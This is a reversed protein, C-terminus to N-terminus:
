GDLGSWTQPGVIGDVIFNNEQQFNRVAKQTLPGFIGDPELQQALVRNLSEQLVAVSSGRDGRRLLPRKGGTALIEKLSSDHQSQDKKWKEYTFDKINEKARNRRFLEQIYTRRSANVYSSGSTVNQEVTTFNWTTADSIGAYSNGAADDFATADILVYYEAGNVLDSTPDITIEDSGSGSVDSTVDFVEVTDGNSRKLTINGSEADVDESFTITLNADIAVGTSDDSPSVSSLTPSTADSTTWNTLNSGYTNTSSYPIATENINNSDQLDLYSFSRTGQPDIKFATGSTSSRLSLLNSLAGNLTGTNTITTTSGQGFTLTDASLVSKTFDYFTNSSNITQSTGDLTVTGTGATFVGGNNEFDGAVTIDQTDADVTGAGLILDGDIDLAEDLTLTTDSTDPQNGNALASIEAETLARDYIRVDDLRNEIYFSGSGNGGIYYPGATVNPTINSGVDIDLAIESGDLYLKNGSHGDNGGTRVWVAHHWEDNTFTESSAQGTAWHGVFLQNETNSYISIQASQGGSATGWDVFRGYNGNTTAGTPIYFWLAVSFTTNGTLTSNEDTVLYDNTGDSYLSRTNLFNLAPLNESPLSGYATGSYQYGSADDFSGSGTEDLKWHAVLGDNINLNYYDTGFALGTADGAPEVLITGSNTDNTVGALTQTNDLRVTGNNVFTGSDNMTLDYSALDIWAGSNIALGSLLVDATAVPQNTVDAVVWRTYPDPVANIDWNAGTETNTSSSGDWTAQTHNGAALASIETTSLERSYVRVDDILGDAYLTNNSASGVRFTNSGSAAYSSANTYTGQSSGDIYYEVEGSRQVAVLHYWTDTDLETITVRQDAVGYKSLNIVYQSSIQEYQFAYGAASPTGKAALVYTSEAGPSSNPKFWLSISFSSDGEVELNTVDGMDIYDGSGDFDLSRDNSFNTSPVDSSITANTRTGTNSHGSVDSVSTGSTEDFKWYGELSDTLVGASSFQPAFSVLMVVFFLLSIDKSLRFYM